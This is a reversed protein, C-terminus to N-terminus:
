PRLPFRDAYSRLYALTEGGRPFDHAASPYPHDSFCNSFKSTPAPPFLFPLPCVFILESRCQLFLDVRSPDEEVWWCWLMDESQEGKM